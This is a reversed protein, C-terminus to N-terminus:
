KAAQAVGLAVLSWRVKYLVIDVSVGRLTTKHRKHWM